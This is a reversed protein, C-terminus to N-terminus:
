GLYVSLVDKRAHVRQIRVQILDEPNLRTRESAPLDCELMYDTLLILYSNKKRYLVIAEEPQGIRSELYKLMWYRHRRFQTRTVRSMPQELDQIVQDIAEGSYPTDLGLIARIQRQTVLDFYKRIPSTATVYETLGLGSHHDPQSSLIFRSLHKRQMWNQYLTGEMKKFLRERPKPQSRFVAPEGHDKLFRAMLWNAMIMLESVLMRGPSERNVRSVRIEGDRDMWVHIEPVSILVAGSDLRKERFQKAVQHLMQLEPNDEAAVNADYYTWQSSVRIRSPFVEYDLVDANSSLLAMITIAPRIEGAKLSCLGEALPAPLMPIRDDPMYISSGRRRAEQDILDGKPIAQGVDAIHIGLRYSDRIKEISLADDFDLTAQGDITLIPLHTLDKRPDGDLSVGSAMLAQARKSVTEPFKSAIKFRRLDINENEDYIGLKVLARFIIDPDKLGARSLIANGLAYDTSEKGDLYLNDLIRVLDLKDAPVTPNPANLVANLWDGGDEVLKQRRSNERAQAAIQEVQAETYPFFRDQGFKFYNRNEFLAHLVAAQHDDSHPGNFCLGTMTELDIWGPESNLVEWLERVRVEEALAQRQRQKAKLSEVLGARGVSVDLGNQGAHLVRGAALNVERNGETLLRLRSNKVELVVAYVIRQRDIYAVVSGSKM